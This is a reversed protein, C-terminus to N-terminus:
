HDGFTADPDFIPLVEGDAPIAPPVPIVSPIKGELGCEACRTIGEGMLWWVNYLGCRKCSGPGHPGHEKLLRVSEHCTECACEAEIDQM